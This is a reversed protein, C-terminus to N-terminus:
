HVNGEDMLSQGVTEVDDDMLIAITRDDRDVHPVVDARLVLLGPASPKRVQEFVQHELAGFVVVGAIKPRELFDAADEVSRGIGIPGVVPFDHWRVSHLQREPHFGIAHAEEQRRQSLGLELVLAVDHEVFPPLVVLVPGIAKGAHRDDSGEVGRFM